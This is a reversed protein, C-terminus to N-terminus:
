KIKIETENNELRFYREKKKWSADRSSCSTVCPWTKEYTQIWLKGARQSTAM